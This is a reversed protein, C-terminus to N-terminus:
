STRTRTRRRTTGASWRAEIRDILVSAPEDDPDQPVLRGTFAAAIISSRLGGGGERRHLEFGLRRAAADLQRVASDLGSLHEEIAIVIRSQESLPPVPVPLRSLAERNIKPLVSRGQQGAALATFEASLLWHFLYGSTLDTSIPYMDASCLGEFDVEVVKALYPRIKSYLIHGPAFLHNGSTVGDERVTKYPLLEGTGSVIHNPAIHPLDPYKAPDVLNSDVWAVAGFPAWQWGKPLERM